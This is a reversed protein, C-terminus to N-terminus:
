TALVVPASVDIWVEPGTLPVGEATVAYFLLQSITHAPATKLEAIGAFRALRAADRVMAGIKAHDPHQNEVLTPALVVQPRYKRILAALTLTHALKVELHADGGLELFEVSAGLLAAAKEAEQARQEPTGNTASEGRSCIVLHAARGSQTESAIVGGCGFEIDDPHAGFVLLDPSELRSM